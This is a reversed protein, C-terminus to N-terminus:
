LTINTFPVLNNAQESWPALGTFEGGLVILLGTSGYDPLFHMRGNLTTGYPSYATASRNTWTNSTSNYILLGPVPIQAGSGGSGYVQPGGNWGGLAYGIGDGCAFLASAPRVGTLSPNDHTNSSPVIAYNGGDASPTYQWVNIAPNQLDSHNSLVGGFNYFSKNDASPWLPNWM